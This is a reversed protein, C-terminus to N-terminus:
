THQVAPSERPSSRLVTLSRNTQHHCNCHQHMCQQQLNSREDEAELSLRLGGEGALLILVPDGATPCFSVRPPYLDVDSVLSGATYFIFVVM